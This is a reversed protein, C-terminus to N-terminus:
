DYVNRKGVHTRLSIFSIQEPRLKPIKELWKFGPVLSPKILHMLFALPMGHINGSPSTNPTNIDAHADIWIIGINPNAKLAAAISGIAVSHDGGLVLTFVDDKHYNYAKKYLKYNGKGVPYSNNAIGYIKKMIPDNKKSKPFKLDGTDNVRWNLKKLKSILKKKRLFSPGKNVGLLPQGLVMPAGIIKVIKNNNKKTKSRRRGAKKTKKRRGGMTTKPFFYSQQQKHPKVITTYTKEDINPRDTPKNLNLTPPNGKFSAYLEPAPKSGHSPKLAAKPIFAHSSLKKMGVEYGEAKKFDYFKLTKIINNRILNFFSSYNDGYLQYRDRFEEILYDPNDDERVEMYIISGNLKIPFKGIIAARKRKGRGRKKRTTRRKRTIM